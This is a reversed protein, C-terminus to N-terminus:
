SAAYAKVLTVTRCALDRLIAADAPRCLYHRQMDDLRVQILVEGDGQQIRAVLQGALSTVEDLTTDEPIDLAMWLFGAVVEEVLERRPNFKRRSPARSHVSPFAVPALHLNM